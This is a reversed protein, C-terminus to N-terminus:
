GCGPHTRLQEWFADPVHGGCWALGAAAVFQTRQLNSGFRMLCLAWGGCRADALFQTRKKSKWRAGYGMSWALRLWLFPHTDPREWFATVCAVYSVPMLWLRQGPPKCSMSVLYSGSHTKGAGCFCKCTQPLSSMLVTRGSPCSSLTVVACVFPWSTSKWSLYLLKQKKKVTKKHARQIRTPDTRHAGIKYITYSTYLCELYPTWTLPEMTHVTLRLSSLLRYCAREPEVNKTLSHLAGRQPASTAFIRTDGPTQLLTLELIPRGM